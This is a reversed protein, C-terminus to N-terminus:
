NTKNIKKKIERLYKDTSKNAPDLQKLTTYHEKAAHLWGLKYYSYALKKHFDADEPNQESIKLLYSIAMKYQERKIYSDSLMRSLELEKSNENYATQLYSIARPYVKNTYYLEGIYKNAQYHRKDVALIKRYGAEVKKPDSKFAKIDSLFSNIKADDNSAQVDSGTKNEAANKQLLLLQAQLKQYDKLKLKLTGYDVKLKRLQNKNKLYQKKLLLAKDSKQLKKPDVPSAPEKQKLEKYLRDSISLLNKYRAELSRYNKKYVLLEKKISDLSRMKTEELKGKVSTNSARLNENSKQLTDLQKNLLILESGLQRKQRKLENQQSASQEAQKLLKAHQDQGTKNKLAQLSDKHRKNSQSLENLKDNLKLRSMESAALKKHSNILSNNAARLKNNNITMEVELEKNAGKLETNEKKLKHIGKGSAEKLEKFELKLKVLEHHTELRKARERALEQMAQDTLKTGIESLTIKEMLKNQLNRKQRAMVSEEIVNKTKVEKKEIEKKVREITPREQFSKFLENHTKANKEKIKSIRVRCSKILNDITQKNNASDLKLTQFILIASRFKAIASPYNHRKEQDMADAMKQTGSAMTTKNVNLKMNALEKSITLDEIAKRSKIIYSSIRSDKQRFKKHKKYLNEFLKISKKYNELAASDGSIRQREALIFGKQAELYLKDPDETKTLQKLKKNYKKLSSEVLGTWNTDDPFTKKFEDLKAIAKKYHAIAELGTSAEALQQNLGADAMLGLKKEKITLTKKITKTDSKETQAMLSLAFIFLILRKM